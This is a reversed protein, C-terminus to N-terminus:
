LFLPMIICMVVKFQYKLTINLFSRLLRKYVVDSIGMVNLCLKLTKENKKNKKGM